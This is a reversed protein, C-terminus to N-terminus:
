KLNNLARTGSEIAEIQHKIRGLDTERQLDLSLQVIKNILTNKVFEATEPSMAKPSIELSPSPPQLPSTQSISRGEERSISAPAKPKQDVPLDSDCVPCLVNGKYRFLPAGCECHEALM